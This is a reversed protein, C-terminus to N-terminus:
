EGSADSRREVALEGLEALTKSLLQGNREIRLALPFPLSMALERFEDGNRFTHGAVDYVRDHRQLGARAAASDTEVQTVIVVGPEADDMQWTIGLRQPKGALQVMM